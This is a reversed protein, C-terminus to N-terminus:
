HTLQAWNEEGLLRQNQPMREGDVHGLEVGERKRHREFGRRNEPRLGQM